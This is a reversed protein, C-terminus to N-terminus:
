KFTMSLEAKRVVEDARYAETVRLQVAMAEWALASRICRDRVNALVAVAADRRCQSAREDYIELTTM